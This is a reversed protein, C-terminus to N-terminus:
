PACIPLTNNIQAVIRHTEAKTIVPNIALGAVDPSFDGKSSVPEYTYNASSPNFHTVCTVTGYNSYEPMTVHVPFVSIIVDSKLSVSPVGIHTGHKEGADKQYSSHSFHSLVDSEPGHASESAFAVGSLCFSLSALLGFSMKKM